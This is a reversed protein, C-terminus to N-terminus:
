SYKQPPKKDYVEGEKVEIGCKVQCGDKITANDYVEARGLISVNNGIKVNNSIWDKIAEEIIEAESMGTSAAAKSLVDVVDKNIDTSYREKM